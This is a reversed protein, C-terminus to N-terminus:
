KIVGNIPYYKNKTDNLENQLERTKNDIETKQVVEKWSDNV